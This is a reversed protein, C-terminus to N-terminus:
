GRRVLEISQIEIRGSPQDAPAPSDSVPFIIVGFDQDVARLAQGVDMCGYFDARASAAGLCTWAAPQASLDIEVLVPESGNPPLSADISTRTYVFNAFRGDPMTTQFWFRLRGGALDLNQARLELRLTADRLDLTRLGQTTSGAAGDLYLWSLLSLYGAGPPAHNPDLWWPSELVMRQGAVPADINCAYLSLWSIWCEQYQAPLQDAALLTRATSWGGAGEMFDHRYLV